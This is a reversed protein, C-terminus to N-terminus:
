KEDFGIFGPHIQKFWSLENFFLELDKISSIVVGFTLESSMEKIPMLYLENINYTPFNDEDSEINQNFHPDAFILKKNKLGIFYYARNKKGSVFGINNHINNFLKPIMDINNKDLKQLGLRLTIFIIGNKKFFYKENNYMICDINTKLNNEGNKECLNEIVIKKSVSTSFHLMSIEENFLAKNIKLMVEVIKYDSSFVNPCNGLLTLIYISYPPILEIINVNKKNKILIKKYISYIDKNIHMKQIEIFKDYFLLITEQKIKELECYKLENDYNAKNKDNNFENSKLKILARSLMMQCCRVMCGWGCDSTYDNKNGPLFKTNVLGNRYSMYVFMNKISNLSFNNILSDYIIIQKKTNENLKDKFTLGNYVMTSMLSKIYEKKPKKTPISISIIELLDLEKEKQIIDSKWMPEININNTDDYKEFDDFLNTEKSNNQNNITNINIKSNIEQSKTQKKGFKLDIEKTEGNVSDFIKIAKNINNINNIINKNPEM